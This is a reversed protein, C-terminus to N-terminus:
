LKDKMLLKLADHEDNATMTPQDDLEKLRAKDADVEFTVEQYQRPELVPPPETGNIWAVWGIDEKVVGGIVYYKASGGADQKGFSRRFDQYWESNAAVEDIEMELLPVNISYRFDYLDRDLVVAYIWQRGDTDADKGYLIKM